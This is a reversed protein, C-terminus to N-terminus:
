SGVGAQAGHRLPVGDSANRTSTPLAVSPTGKRWPAWAPAPEYRKEALTSVADGQVLEVKITSLGRRPEAVRVTVPTNQGIVQAAPEISITPASGIRLFVFGVLGLVIILVVLLSLKRM